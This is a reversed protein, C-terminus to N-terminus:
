TLYFNKLPAIPKGANTDVRTVLYQGGVLTVLYRTRDVNTVMYLNSDLRTVSETLRSTDTATFHAYTSYVASRSNVKGPLPQRPRRPALM